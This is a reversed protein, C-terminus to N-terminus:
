QPTTLGEIPNIVLYGEAVSVEPVLAEVFPVEFRSSGAAVLLRYQAAGDILEEVIGLVEGETNRVELGVLEDPWYEGEELVRREEIPITLNRSRLREAAERDEVGEFRVLWVADSPRVQAVSLTETDDLFFRAGERFRSPDDTEPVM